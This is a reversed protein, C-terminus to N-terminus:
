VATSGPGSTGSIWLQCVFSNWNPGIYAKLTQKNFTIYV